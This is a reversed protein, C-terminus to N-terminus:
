YLGKNPNRSVENALGDVYSELSGDELSEWAHDKLRHKCIEGKQLGFAWGEM